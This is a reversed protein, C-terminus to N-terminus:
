LESGWGRGRWPGFTKAVGLTFLIPLDVEASRDHVVRRM